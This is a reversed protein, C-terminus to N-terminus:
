PMSVGLLVIKTIPRVLEASRTKVCVSRVFDDRGKNVLKVLGLPWINRPTNEDAILVLDGVNFNRQKDVWKARKQLQPLYMMVWERWFVDALHQVHKWRRKYKDGKDFKGMPFIPNERLLLLHNPTLPSPDEPDDSLKTLPRGNIISEAEAFVTELFKM